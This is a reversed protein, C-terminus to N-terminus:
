GADAHLISHRIALNRCKKGGNKRMAKAVSVVEDAPHPVWHPPAVAPTPLDLPNVMEAGLVSSGGSRSRVGFGWGGGLTLFFLALGARM